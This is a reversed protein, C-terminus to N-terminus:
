ALAFDVLARAHIAATDYVPLATIRGAVLCLETCGLIVSDAGRSAAESALRAVFEAAPERVIGACLEEFIIAHLRLRDVEDPLLTAFGGELLRERYFDQEMTFRTALLLPRRRREAALRAGLSDVVHLLPVTIRSAILPACKHMTNTALAICDAGAGQLQLAAGALYEAAEDWRGGAQMAAIDAMDLSHLIVRASHLGGLRRRVEQNLIEYYIRSSEWSM